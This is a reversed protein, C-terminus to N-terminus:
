KIVKTARGAKVQIYIGSQPEAVPIGSLTYYTTVGATPDETLNDVGASHKSSKGIREISLWGGRKVRETIQSSSGEYNQVSKCDILFKYYLNTAPTPINFYWLHPYTDSSTDHHITAIPDTFDANDAVVLDVGRVYDALDSAAYSVNLRLCGIRSPIPMTSYLEAVYETATPTGVKLYDSYLMIHSKWYGGFIYDNSTLDTLWDDNSDWLKFSEHMSVEEFDSDDASAVFSSLSMITFVALPLIFIRKIM